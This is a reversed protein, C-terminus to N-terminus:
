AFRSIFVGPSVEMHRIMLGLPFERYCRRTIPAQWGWVAKAAREAHLRLALHSEFRHSLANVTYTRVGDIKNFRLAQQATLAYSVDICEPHGAVDVRFLTGYHHDSFVECSLYPVGAEM